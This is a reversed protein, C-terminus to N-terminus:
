LINTSIEEPVEGLFNRLISHRPYPATTKGPKGVLELCQRKVLFHHDKGKLQICLGKLFFVKDNRGVMSECM